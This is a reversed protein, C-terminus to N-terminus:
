DASRRSPLPVASVKFRVNAGDRLATSLRCPGLHAQPDSRRSCDRSAIHLRPYVEGACACCIPAGKGAIRRCMEERESHIKETIRMTKRELNQNSLRVSHEIWKAM